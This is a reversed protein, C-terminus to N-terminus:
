YIVDHHDYDLICIAKNDEDIEYILVFSSDIHVRRAGHMDGRLPKYHYPNGAIQQVKKSVMGMQKPNKKALKRFKRDAVESVVIGYQM